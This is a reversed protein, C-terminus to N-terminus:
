ERAPAGNWGADNFGNERNGAAPARSAPKEIGRYDSCLVAVGM